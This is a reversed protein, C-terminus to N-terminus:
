AEKRGRSNPIDLFDRRYKMVTRRAIDYGYHQLISCINEDTYPKHKEENNIIKFIKELIEYRSVRKGNLLCIGEDFLSPTELSIQDQKDLTYTREKTFVRVNQTARSIGSIEIGCSDSVSQLTMPKCSSFCGTRLLDMQYDICSGIITELRDRSITGDFLEYVVFYYGESNFDSFGSTLSEYSFSDVGNHIDNLKNTYYTKVLNGSYRIQIGYGTVNYTPYAHDTPFTDQVKGANDILFQGLALANDRDIAPLSVETGNSCKVDFSTLGDKLNCTVTLENGQFRYSFAPNKRAM